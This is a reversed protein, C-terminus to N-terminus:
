FALKMYFHEQQTTFDILPIQNTETHTKQLIKNISILLTCLASRCRSAPLFASTDNNLSCALTAVKKEPIDNKEQFIVQLSDNERKPMQSANEKFYVQWLPCRVNNVVLSLIWAKPCFYSNQFVRIQQRSNSLQRFSSSKKRSKIISFKM